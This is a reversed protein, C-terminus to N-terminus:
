RSQSRGKGVEGDLHHCPVRGYRSAVCIEAEDPHRAFGNGFFGALQPKRILEHKRDDRGFQEFTMARSVAPGVQRQQRFSMAALVHAGFPRPRCPEAGAGRPRFRHTEAIDAARQLRRDIAVADRETARQQDRVRQPTSPQFSEAAPALRSEARLHLDRPPAIRSISIGRPHGAPQNRIRARGVVKM